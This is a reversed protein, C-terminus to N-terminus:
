PAVERGSEYHDGALIGRGCHEIWVTFTNQACTEEGEAADPYKILLDDTDPLETWDVPADVIGTHKQFIDSADWQSFAIVFDTGNTFAKLRKEGLDFGIATNGAMTELIAYTLLRNRM